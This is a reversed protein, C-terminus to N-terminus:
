KIKVMRVSSVNDASQVKVMYVGSPLDSPARFEHMGAGLEVGDVLIIHTVGTVDTIEITAKSPQPINVYIVGYDNYPNPAVDVGYQDTAMEAIPTPNSVTVNTFRPVSTGCANTATVTLTGSTANAAFDLVAANGMNNITVGTGTYAWTYTIGAVNPVMYTIGSQGQYVPTPAVVFMGPQSAIPSVTVIIDRPISPGSGNNAVVRITGSTASGTFNM